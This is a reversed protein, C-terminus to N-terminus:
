VLGGSVLRFAETVVYGGDSRGIIGRESLSKLLFRLRSSAQGNRNREGTAIGISTGKAPGHDLLYRVVSRGLVSFFFLALPNTRERFTMDHSVVSVMTVRERKVIPAMRGTLAVIGPNASVRVKVAYDVVERLHVCRRFSEQWAPRCDPVVLDDVKRGILRRTVGYAWRNSWLLVGEPDFLSLFAPFAELARALEHSTM